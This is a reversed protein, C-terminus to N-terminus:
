MLLFLILPFALLAFLIIISIRWAVFKKSNKYDINGKDKEEKAKKLYCAVLVVMVIFLVISILAFIQFYIIADIMTSGFTSWKEDM